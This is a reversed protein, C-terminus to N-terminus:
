VYLGKFEEVERLSDLDNDQKSWEVLSPALPLAERLNEIAKQPRHTLAYFCALNYRTIGKHQGGQDLALLDRTMTEQIQTARELQAHDVLYTCLHHYPHWHANGLLAMWAPRTGAWALRGPLTLDEESMADVARLLQAFARTDEALLDEWTRTRHAAFLAANIRDLEELENPSEGDPLGAIRRNLRGNWGVLHALLDKPAWRDPRGVQARDEAPLQDWFDCVDQHAQNLLHLLRPKLARESM